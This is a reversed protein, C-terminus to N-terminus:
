YPWEQSKIIRSILVQGCPRQGDSTEAPPWSKESTEVHLLRDERMEDEESKRYTRTWKCKIRVSFSSYTVTITIHRGDSHRDTHSWSITTILVYSNHEMYLCFVNCDRNNSNENRWLWHATTCSRHRDTHVATRCVPQAATQQIRADLSISHKSRQENHRLARRETMTQQRVTAYMSKRIYQWNM